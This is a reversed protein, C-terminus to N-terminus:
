SAIDLRREIAEVEAVEEATAAGLAELQRLGRALWAPAPVSRFADIEARLAGVDVTEGVTACLRTRLLTVVASWTVPRFPAREVAAAAVALAERVREHAGDALWAGLVADAADCFSPLQSADDFAPLAADDDPEYIATRSWGLAAFRLDAATSMVRAWPAPVAPFHPRFRKSFAHARRLLEEDQRAAAIPLIAYWSRIGARRYANREALDVARLGAALAGDWDGTLLGLETRVYETWALEELLGRARCLEDGRDLAESAAVPERELLMIAETRVAAAATAWRGRQLALREVERVDDVTADGLDTEWRTHLAVAELEVDPAHTTRAIAAARRVDALPGDVDDTGYGVATGRLLLLRATEVDEGQGLEQLAEKALAAADDFRVQQNYVWGLSATAAAYEARAAALEGDDTSHLVTGALERASELEGAAEDMDASQAIAEGLQRRRRASDLVADDQTLELARTLLARATEHAGLELATAAGLEFWGAAAHAAEARSLQPAVEAALRPASEVAAAYHRGIVEAIQGRREGAVTELWRALRVHLDAREARALSAYGADRLLAHRFAYTSGFVADADPGGILARRALVELGENADDVGLPELAAAPFRRGPVAARRATLRAPPPLDDLQAAYITQVTTPVSVEAPDATLQWRDGEAVLLGSSVWARLLEEVFLPNGDSAEVVRAALASPLAGGVLEGILTTTTRQSLPALELEDDLEFRERLAPRGTVIVLRPSGAPPSAAALLFALLDGGAWHADEVIWLARGGGGLADFAELWTAFVADRSAPEAQGDAADPFLVAAVAEAIVQSRGPDTGAAGLREGLLRATAPATLSEAALGAAVVAAAFLQAVGDYPALVDPRLRARYVLADGGASRALEDVLRTKGVGPPALVAVAHAAGTELAALTRELREFERERGLMPARLGGMARERSPEAREAVALWARTGHAKGKLELEGASELEVADEVALATEEGVLVGGPPAAAQLRAAVNVTDGTVPGREASAEGYVVEGTNVGVRLRLEGAALGVRAGLQDVASTLALAARVAREADDDRVRPIGFVAVAADGIFKELSGGYRAVTERVAAFYADQVAVVDEPDLAESLATFGVLDGFLVTVIRRELAREAAM